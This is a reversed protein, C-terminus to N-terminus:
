FAWVSQAAGALLLRRLSTEELPKFPPYRSSVTEDDCGIRRSPECNWAGWHPSPKTYSRTALTRQFVRSCGPDCDRHLDM